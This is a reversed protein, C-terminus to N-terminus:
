RGGVRAAGPFDGSTQGRPLWPLDTGRRLGGHASSSQAQHHQEWGRGNGGAASGRAPGPSKKNANTTVSANTGDAAGSSGPAGTVPQLLSPPLSFGM